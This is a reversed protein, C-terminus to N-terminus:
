QVSVQVLQSTSQINVYVQVSQSFHTETEIIINQFEPTNIEINFWNGSLLGTQKGKRIINYWLADFDHDSGLRCRSKTKNKAKKTKIPRKKATKKHAKKVPHPK